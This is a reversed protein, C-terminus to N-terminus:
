GLPTPYPPLHSPPEFPLPYIYVIASEPHPKVSFLLIGYLLQGEIFFHIFFDVHFLLLYLIIQFFFLVFFCFLLLGDLLGPKGLLSYNALASM